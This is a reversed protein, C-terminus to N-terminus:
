WKAVRGAGNQDSYKQSVIELAMQRPQSQVTIRRIEAEQISLIVPMLWQYQARPDSQINGKQDYLFSYKATRMM